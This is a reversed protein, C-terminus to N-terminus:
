GGDALETDTIPSGDRYTAPGKKWTNLGMGQLRQRKSGMNIGEAFSKARAEFCSWCSLM